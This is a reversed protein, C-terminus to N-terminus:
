SMDGMAARLSAVGHAAKRMIEEYEFVPSSDAVIGAGAQLVFKNQHFQIMRIAICTDMTLGPGWYGVAGGYPGRPKNELDDIIEM